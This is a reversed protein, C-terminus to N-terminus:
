YEKGDQYLSIDNLALHYQTESAGNSDFGRRYLQLAVARPSVDKANIRITIRLGDVDEDLTKGM